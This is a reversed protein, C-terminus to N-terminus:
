KPLFYGVLPMSKNLQQLYTSFLDMVLMCMVALFRNFEIKAHAVIRGGQVCQWHLVHVKRNHAEGLCCLAAICNCVVFM